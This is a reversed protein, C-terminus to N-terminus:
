PRSGRCEPYRVCGWFQTGASAGRRATRRVMAAGCRPCVPPLSSSDPQDTVCNQLGPSKNPTRFCKRSQVSRIMNTLEDGAILTLKTSQAFAIAEATYTGSTVMIGNAAQERAVVGMLERIPCVGVRQIKWHKCQVLTKEGDRWLVLDIGGDNGGAGTREVEYGLRRFAEGTLEEFEYWTLDQISDNGTQIDM